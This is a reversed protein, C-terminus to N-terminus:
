QNDVEKELNNIREELSLLYRALERDIELRRMMNVVRRTREQERAIYTEPDPREADGSDL